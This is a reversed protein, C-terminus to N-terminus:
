STPSGRPWTTRTTASCRRSAAPRRWCSPTPSSTSLLYTNMSLAPSSASRGTTATAPQLRRRELAEWACELFLRQQPDMLEAERPAFGFFAADFTEVDDALMAAVRVYDPRRVVSPEIGAGLIEEETLARVAEVGDRLTEWLREVTPAGPFRGTMGIIAVESGNWDEALAPTTEDSSM